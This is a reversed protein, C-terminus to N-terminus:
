EGNKDDREDLCDESPPLNSQFTSDMELLHSSDRCYTGRKWPVRLELGHLTATTILISIRGCNQRQYPSARERKDEERKPTEQHPPRTGQEEKEPGGEGDRKADDGHSGDEVVHRRGTDDGIELM